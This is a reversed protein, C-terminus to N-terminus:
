CGDDVSMTVAAVECELMQELARKILPKAEDILVKQGHLYLRMCSDKEFVVPDPIKLDMQNARDQILKARNSTTVIIPYGTVSSTYILATTKGQGRRKIFWNM